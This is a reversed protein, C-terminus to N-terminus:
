GSAAPKQFRDLRTYSSNVALHPLAGATAETIMGPWRGSKGRLSFELNNDLAFQIAREFGAVGAGSWRRAAGLATCVSLLVPFVLNRKERKSIMLIRGAADRGGASIVQKLVKHNVLGFKELYEALLLRSSKKARAAKSTGIIIMALDGDCDVAEFIEASGIRKNPAAGVANRWSPVCPNMGKEASRLHIIEAMEHINSFEWHMPCRISHYACVHWAPIFGRFRTFHVDVPPLHNFFPERAAPEIRIFIDAMNIYEDSVSALILLIGRSRGRIQIHEKSLDCKPNAAAQADIFRQFIHRRIQGPKHGNIM